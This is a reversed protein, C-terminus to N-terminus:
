MVSVFCVLNWLIIHDVYAIHMEDGVSDAYFLCVHVAAPSGPSCDRVSFFCTVVSM